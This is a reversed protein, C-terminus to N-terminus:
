KRAQSLVRIKGEEMVVTDEIRVGGWGALYVGPEITFVMGSTLTEASGPGLRPAEHPALGLGHGLGHGFAEGYGAEEIVTRALRDAEEGTMGEQIMAIAALQAGLVANYVRSFTDDPTGACFTRSLDSGYGEFRAGIDIVVPEGSNIKRQSPRAHPLASNPGSAVIIDFPLRDSGRKRLFKEIEWALEKESMGTHIIGGIYGTAADVMEAARTISEIEEPEKVARIQEVLGETPVLKLGAKKVAESTQRYSALTIDAAEFGLRSLNLGAAADPLWRAIDGSTRFVEYDPAEGRAQETYRSDTALVTNTPTILLFGASGDFGSLYYRNEPQSILIAEIEKAALAQRLKQIRNSIKSSM